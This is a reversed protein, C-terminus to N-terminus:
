KDRQQPSQDVVKAVEEFKERVLDEAEDPLLDSEASLLLGLVHILKDEREFQRKRVEKVHIFCDCGGFHTSHPRIKM